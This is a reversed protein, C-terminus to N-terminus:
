WGSPSNLPAVFGMAEIEHLQGDTGIKWIHEAPLDFPPFAPACMQTTGDALIVECPINDMPQHFQSLGMALGTVRDAAFVRRNGITEIYTFM